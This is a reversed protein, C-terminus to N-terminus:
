LLISVETDTLARKERDAVAKMAVVGREFEEQCKNLLTRRFQVPNGDEDELSPLAPNLSCNDFSFLLTLRVLLASPTISLSSGAIVSLL